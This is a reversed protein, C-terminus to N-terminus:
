EATTYEGSVYGKWSSELAWGFAEDLNDKTVMVFPTEVIKPVEEGNLAAVVIRLMIGAEYTPSNALTALAKGQAVGDLDEERGNHTVIKIPNNLKGASELAKVTGLYVDANMAYIVDYDGEKYSAMWANVVEESKAASWDTAATLVVEGKDGLAETFGDTFPEAIGQGLAGQVIAVKSGPLNEAVYKGLMQGGTVFNGKITSTVVGPGEAAESGVIFFPIKAENAKQAGIQSTEASATFVVIADVKQQIFNEVAALEKEAKMESNSFIMNIGLKDATYKAADAQMQYYADAGGQVYGITYAKAPKIYDEEAAPAQSSEEAPASANETAAATAAAATAAATAAESTAPTDTKKCGAFSLLVLCVLLIAVITKKM